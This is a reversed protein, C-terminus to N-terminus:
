VGFSKRGIRTPMSTTSSDDSETSPLLHDISVQLYARVHDIHEVDPITGGQISSLLVEWYEQIIHIMDMFITVYLVGILELRPDALSFLTHILLFSPRHAILGAAWPAVHGPVLLYSTM